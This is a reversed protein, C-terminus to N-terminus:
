PMPIVCLSETPTQCGGVCSTRNRSDIVAAGGPVSSCRFEGSTSVVCQGPGCFYKGSNIDFIIDGFPPACLAQEANQTWYCKPVALSWAPSVLEALCIMALIVYTIILLGKTKM